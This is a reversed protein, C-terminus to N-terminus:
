LLGCYARNIGTCDTLTQYSVLLLWYPIISHAVADGRYLDQVADIEDALFLSQGVDGVLIEHELPFRYPLKNRGISLDAIAVNEVLFRCLEQSRNEPVHIIIGMDGGSDGDPFVLHSSLRKQYLSPNYPVILGKSDILHIVNLHQGQAFALKVPIVDRGPIVRDIERHPDRSGDLHAVIVFPIGGSADRPQFRHCQHLFEGVAAPVAENGLHISAACDGSIIQQCHLM